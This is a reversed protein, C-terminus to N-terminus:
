RGVLEVSASSVVWRCSRRTTCTLELWSVMPRAGNGSTYEDGADDIRVLEDAHDEGM